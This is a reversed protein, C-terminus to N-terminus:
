SVHSAVVIGRWGGWYKSEDGATEQERHRARKGTAKTVAWKMHAVHSPIWILAIFLYVFAHMLSHVLSHTCPHTLRPCANPQTTTYSTEASNGHICNNNISFINQEDSPVVPWDDRVREPNPQQTYHRMLTAHLQQEHLTNQGAGASCSQWIPTDTRLTTQNKLRGRFSMDENAPVAPWDDRVHAPNPQQAYHRLLTVTSAIATLPSHTITAFLATM